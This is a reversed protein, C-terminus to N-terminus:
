ACAAFSSEAAVPRSTSNTSMGSSPAVRAITWAPSGSNAARCTTPTKAAARRPASSCIVVVTSDSVPRGARRRAEKTLSWARTKEGTTAPACRHALARDRELRVLGQDAAHELLHDRRALRARHTFAECRVEDVVVRQGSLRGADFSGFVDDRGHVAGVGVQPEGDVIEDGLRVEDRDAPRHVGGVASRQEPLRRGVAGDLERGDDDEPDRVALDGLAPGAPLAGWWLARRLWGRVRIEAAVPRLRHGATILPSSRLRKEYSIRPRTPRPPA